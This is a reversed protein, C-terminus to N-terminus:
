ETRMGVTAALGALPPPHSVRTLAASFPVSNRIQNVRMACLSKTETVM